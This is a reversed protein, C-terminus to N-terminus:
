MRGSVKQALGHAKECAEEGGAIHGREGNIDAHDTRRLSQDPALTFQRLCSIDISYITRVNKLISAKTAMGLCELGSRRGAALPVLM